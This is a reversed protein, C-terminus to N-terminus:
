FEILSFLKFSLNLKINFYSISNVRNKHHVKRLLVNVIENYYMRM